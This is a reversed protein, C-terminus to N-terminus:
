DRLMKGTLKLFVEELNQAAHKAVLAKPTGEEIIKGLDMVLIRDCLEAAEEMYHTTLVTTVGQRRLEKLRDWMLHRAQPDLGTTPEDLSLVEPRNILARAILLRRVMGGSLRDPEGNAKEKLHFFNLLEEARSRAEKKPLDFYRAYVLLNQLVTLEPDLSNEQPVVGMRRKIERPAKELSLGFVQLSGETPPAYGRLMRLTTTKGAGNPGLFGLCEGKRVHFSIHDVALVPGYRKVLNTAEILEQM